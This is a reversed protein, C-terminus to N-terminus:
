GSGTLYLALVAGAAIAPAYPFRRGRIRGTGGSGSAFTLWGIPWVRELWLLGLALVAGALLTLGAALAATSPDFFAGVAAMWKVDAAGMGKLLYFPLFLAFGVGAGALADLGGAPGKSILQGILAVGLAAGVLRNSIRQARLDTWIARALFVSLLSAPLLAAFSNTM